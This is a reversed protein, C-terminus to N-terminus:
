FIVKNDIKLILKKPIGKIKLITKDGDEKKYVEDWSYFAIGDVVVGKEYISIYHTQKLNAILFGLFLVLSSLIHRLLIGYAFYYVISIGILIFSMGVLVYHWDGIKTKGRGVFKGLDIKKVKFCAYLIPVIFVIGLGFVLGIQFMLNLRDAFGLLLFMVGFLTSNGILYFYYPNIRM